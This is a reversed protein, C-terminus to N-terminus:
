GSGDPLKARIESATQAFEEATFGLRPLTFNLEAGSDIPVLHVHAHRVELGIVAVGVKKCPISRGMARAVVGAFVFLGALEQDELDFVNDVHMLPLVIVHGRKLPKQELFAAYRENRLIFHAAERGDLIRAFPSEANM